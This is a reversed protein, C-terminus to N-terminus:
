GGTVPPFFAIEDQNRIATQKDCHTQNVAILVSQNESFAIEWQDNRTRIHAILQAINEINAPLEIEEEECNLKERLSAFYKIKM